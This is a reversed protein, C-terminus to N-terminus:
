KAVSEEAPAADAGSFGGERKFKEFARIEQDLEAYTKSAALRTRLALQGEVQAALITKFGKPDVIDFCYAEFGTKDERYPTEFSRVGYLLQDWMQKYANADQKIIAGGMDQAFGKQLGSVKVEMATAIKNLADSCAESIAMGKDSSHAVGVEALIGKEFLKNKRATLRGLPDGDGSAGKYGGGCGVFTLAFFVLGAILGSTKGYGNMIIGEQTIGGNSGGHLFGERRM